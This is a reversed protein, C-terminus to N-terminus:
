PCDCKVTENDRSVEAITTTSDTCILIFNLQDQELLYRKPNGQADSKSFDIDGDWKAHEFNEMSVGLCNMRCHAHNTVHVRSTQVTKLVQKSPLWGLWDYNPFMLFVVLCGVAFGTLYLFLRRKFKM